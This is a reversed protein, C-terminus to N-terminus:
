KVCRVFTLAGTKPDLDYSMGSFETVAVTGDQNLRAIMWYNIMFRTDGNEEQIEIRKSQAIRWLMKGDSDLGVINCDRRPDDRPLLSKEGDTEAFDVIIVGSDHVLVKEIPMELEIEKDGITLMRGEFSVHM